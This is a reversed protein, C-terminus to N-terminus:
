FFPPGESRLEPYADPYVPLPGNWFEVHGDAFLLNSGGKHPRTRWIDNRPTLTYWAEVEGILLTKSPREINSMKFWPGDYPPLNLFGPYSNMGYHLKNFYGEAPTGRAPCTMISNKKQSWESYPLYGTLNLLASWEVGAQPTKMANAPLLAGNHDSAYQAIISWIQHLNRACITVAMEERIRKTVGFGLISVVALIAVAVLLETLTFAGRFTEPLSGKFRHGESNRQM